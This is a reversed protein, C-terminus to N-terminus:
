KNDLVERLENALVTPSLPKQLFSMGPDLVGHGAIIDDTYGSMYIVKIGPRAALMKKALERGNFGPMIVDTLLLDIEGGFSNSMELAETGSSADLLKYGLPQLTNCVLKRTAQDDEAVLVTETGKPMTPPEEAGTKELAELTVPLYVEFTTGKGVKSEAYIYGNHQKVIGYVTALGLGTGKGVKKTTFFPEFVKELVEPEMGEGTDTVRLLVYSGPVIGPLRDTITEIIELDSVAIVFRGGDPMVDRSNVALNMLIQEIQIPDVMVSRTPAKTELEIAIDEGILRALMNTMSKVLENLHVVKMELVQKRSFALLQRVVGEAKIGAEKVNSVYEKVPNDDELMYLALEAYGIIASLMNNFDHAVGGALRGVIEMKQAHLLEAQLKKQEQEAREREEIESELRQNALTLETFQKEEVRKRNWASVMNLATQRLEVVSFPKKFYLLEDQHGELFLRRIQELNRDYFATVVACLVQPDIERIQKITEYGDLGGPMRMDFFGAAIHNGRAKEQEVIRIAEEGSSALFLHYQPKKASISPGHEDGENLIEAFLDKQPDSSLVDRYSELVAEEDDVCLISRNFDTKERMTM